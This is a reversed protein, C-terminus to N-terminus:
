AHSAQSQERVCFVFVCARVHQACVGLASTLFQQCQLGGNSDFTGSFSYGLSRDPLARRADEIQPPQQLARFSAFPRFLSRCSISNSNDYGCLMAFTPHAKASGVLPGMFDYTSEHSLFNFAPIRRGLTKGQCWVQMLWLQTSFVSACLLICSTAFHWLLAAPAALTTASDAFGGDVVTDRWFQM